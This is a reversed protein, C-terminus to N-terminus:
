DAQKREYDYWQADSKIKPKRKLINDCNGLPPTARVIPKKCNCM